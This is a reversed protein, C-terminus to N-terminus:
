QTAGFTNNSLDWVVTTTYAGGSTLVVYRGDRELHPENTWSEFHSFFDGTQSNWVWVTKNDSAMGTFWVDNKDQHLWAYAGQVLPFFGTNEPQLTATTYRVLQTGTHIYM